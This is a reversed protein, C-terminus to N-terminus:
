QIPESDDDIMIGLVLGAFAWVPILPPVIVCLGIVIILLKQQQDTLLKDEQDTM